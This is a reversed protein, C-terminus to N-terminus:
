VRQEYAGEWGCAPRDIDIAGCVDSMTLLRRNFGHFRTALGLHKENKLDVQFLRGAFPAFKFPLTLTCCSRPSTFSSTSLPGNNDPPFALLMFVHSDDSHIVHNFEFCKEKVFYNGIIVSQKAWFNSKNTPNWCIPTLVSLNKCGGCCHCFSIAFLM